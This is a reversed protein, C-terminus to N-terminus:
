DNRGEWNELMSLLAQELFDQAHTFNMQAMMIRVRRATDDDLRVVLRNRKKRRDPRPAAPSTRKEEGETINLGPASGFKEVLIQEAEPLLCIGYEINSCMSSQIKSFRPYEEAVAKIMQKTTIGTASRYENYNTM